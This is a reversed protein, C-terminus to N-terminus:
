NSQRIISFTMHNRDGRRVYDLEATLRRVLLLGLGGIPRESAAAGTDPDPTSRPDFFPGADIIEGKVRDQEVAIRVTASSNLSGGHSILNTLIEDLVLSVHHTTREDVGAQHLFDSARETLESIAQPNVALEAEFPTM